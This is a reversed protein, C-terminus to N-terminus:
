RICRDKYPIGCGKQKRNKFRGQQLDYISKFEGDERAAVISEIASFGVNKIAGLGFRISNEDIIFDKSSKNITPPLVKIGMRKCEEIFVVVKEGKDLESSLLQSM